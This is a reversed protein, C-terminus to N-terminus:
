DELQNRLVTVQVGKDLFGGYMVMAEPELLAQYQKWNISEILEQCHFAMASYYFANFANAMNQVEYEMVRILKKKLLKEFYSYEDMLLPALFVAEWYSATEIRDLYYDNNYYDIRLECKGSVLSSLLCSICIYKIKGKVLSTEAVKVLGDDLANKFSDLITEKNLEFSEKVMDLAHKMKADFEPRVAELLETERATM